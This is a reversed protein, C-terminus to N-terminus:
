PWLLKRRNIELVFLHLPFRDVPQLKESESAVSASEDRQHFVKPIQVVTPRVEGENFPMKRLEIGCPRGSILIPELFPAARPLHQRNRVM